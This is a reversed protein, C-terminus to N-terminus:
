PRAASPAPPPPGAAEQETKFAPPAKYRQVKAPPGQTPAEGGSSACARAWPGPKRPGCVSELLVPQLPEEQEAPEGPM